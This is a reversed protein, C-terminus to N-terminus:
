VLTQRGLSNHSENLCIKIPTVLKVPICFEILINYLVVRQVSVYTKKFDIFLQCVAM